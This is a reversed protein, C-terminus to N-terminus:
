RSGDVHFITDMFYREPIKGNLIYSAETVTLVIKKFNEQDDISVRPCATNIFCDYPLNELKYSNIEDMLIIDGGKGGKIAMDRLKSAIFNRSQGIKRSVIIGFNRCKTAREMLAYRKRVFSENNIETLEGSYPNLSFTKKGSYLSLGLPHFIGDTLVVNCDVLRINDYSSFNCGLIQGPYKLRSDGIGIFVTFKKNEFYEKLKNLENVYQVSAFLGIKICGKKRLINSDPYKQINKFYEIFYTKKLLPMNPIASHGIHIIADVHCEQCSDCSGYVNEGSFEIDFGEFIEKIDKIYYKLGEPLEVLIKRIGIKQMEGKIKKLEDIM